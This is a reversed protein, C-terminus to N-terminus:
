LSGGAEAEQTSPNFTHVVVAWSLEVDQDRPLLFYVAWWVPYLKFMPFRLAWRWLSELLAMCVGVLECRRRTDSVTPAM